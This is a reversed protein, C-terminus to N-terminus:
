MNPSSIEEMRNAGMNCKEGEGNMTERQFCENHNIKKRKCGFGMEEEEGLDDVDEFLELLANEDFQAHLTLNPHSRVHQQRKTVHGLGIREAVHEAGLSVLITTM